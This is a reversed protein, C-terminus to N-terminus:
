NNISSSWDQQLDVVGSERPVIPAVATGTNTSNRPTTTTATTTTTTRVPQGTIKSRTLPGFYGSAPSIGNAAQYRALANQTAPGFYDSENGPSGAGTTAVTFGNSNLFKQLNRVDEGTSGLTLDRNFSGLQANTIQTPNTYSPTLSSQSNNLSSNLRSRDVTGDIIGLSILLELLEIAKNIDEETYRGEAPTQVRNIIQAYRFGNGSIIDERDVVIVGGNEIIIIPCDVTFTGTSHTAEVSIYYRGNRSLNSTQDARRTNFGSINNIDGTWRVNTLNSDDLAFVEFKFSEINNNQNGVISCGIIEDGENIEDDDEDETTATQACIERQIAVLTKGTNLEALRSNLEATTPDRQLCQNYYSKILNSNYTTNQLETASNSQNNLDRMITDPDTNSWEQYQQGEDTELWADYAEEDNMLNSHLPWEIWVINSREQVNRYNSRALGSVFFGVEQFRSPRWDSPIRSSKIHGGDVASAAKSTQNPRLWEWTAVYTVDNYEFIIWPNAVLATEGGLPYGVPWVGAKDYPLNITSSDVTVEGLTATESWSSVDTHLWVWDSQFESTGSFNPNRRFTHRDVRVWEREALAQNVGINTFIILFIFVVQFIKLNKM